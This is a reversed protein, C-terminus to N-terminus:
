SLFKLYNIEVTERFAAYTDTDYRQARTTSDDFRIVKNWIMYLNKSMACKYFDSEHEGWLDATPIRQDHHVGRYYHVAIYARLQLVDLQIEIGLADAKLQSYQVIKDLMVDPFFLNWTELKTDKRAELTPGSRERVVNETGRRGAAPPIYSWQHGNEDRLSEVDGHDRPEECLENEEQPHPNLLTTDDDEDDESGSSLTDDSEESTDDDYMVRLAQVMAARRPRSAM